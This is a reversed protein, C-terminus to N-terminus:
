AEGGGGGAPNDDDGSSSDDRGGEGTDGALERVFAAARERAEDTALEPHRSVLEALDRRLKRRADLKWEVTM